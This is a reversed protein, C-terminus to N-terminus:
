KRTRATLETKCNGKRTLNQLNRKLSDRELELGNREKEADFIIGNQRNLEKYIKLLKPYAAAEASM